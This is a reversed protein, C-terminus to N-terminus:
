EGRVPSRSYGHCLRFNSTSEILEQIYQLKGDGQCRFQDIGTPPNRSLGPIGYDAVRLQAQGRNSKSCEM